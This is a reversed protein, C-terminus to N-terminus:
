STANALQYSTVGTASTTCVVGELGRTDLIHRHIHGPTILAELGLKKVGWRGSARLLAPRISFVWQFPQRESAQGGVM